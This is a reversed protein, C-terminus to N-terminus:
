ELAIGLIRFRARVLIEGRAGQDTRHDFAGTGLRALGNGIWGKPGAPEEEGCMIKQRVRIGM